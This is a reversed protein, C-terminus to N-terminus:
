IMENYINGDVNFDIAYAEEYGGQENPLNVKKVDFEVYNDGNPHDLDYIWGVVMGAKSDHFGLMDYVDNLTLHGTAKLKDNAYNQQSRLFMEVYSSDEEWYPNSRTFYKVYGSANPDAVEISKKVKKEKGKEDTITEEIEEAKINYRLQHDVEKGFREIVRNRYDKFDQTAAALAASIAMNRKRLINNSVLISSISLIGLGVAPAYLKALKVGTQAYVIPTDKKADEANYKEAVDPIGAYEHIKDLQEKTEDLITNIKTTAKCAMVASVVTGVVGVAVLIEPSRKKLGFGIKNLAGSAKSMIENAKM